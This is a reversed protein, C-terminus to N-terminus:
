TASYGGSKTQWGAALVDRARYNLTNIPTTDPSGLFYGQAFQIGFERLAELDEACEVGKAVLTCGWKRARHALAHLTRAKQDDHAVGATVSPALKIIGPLLESWMTIGSPSGKLDDLAVMIGQSRLTGVATKLADLPEFKSHQTIEFTIHQGDVQYARLARLLACHTGGETLAVLSAASLNLYLMDARPTSIWQTLATHLCALEFDAPNAEAQAAQLMHKPHHLPSQRPGRVLAEHGNIKGTSLNIVPQFVSTLACRQVLDMLESRVPEAATPLLKALFRHPIKMGRM